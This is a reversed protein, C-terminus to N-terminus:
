NIRALLKSSGIYNNMIGTETQGLNSCQNVSNFDSVVNQSNRFFQTDQAPYNIMYNSIASVTNQLALLDSYPMNTVNSSGNSSISAVMENTYTILTNELPQLVPNLTISTFNGMICSNNQVGDSQYTLYSLIKGNGMALTYHPTSSDNGVSVVNSQRNTLYLFPSIAAAVNTSTSIINALAANGSPGYASHLNGIGLATNLTTITGNIASAVNAVPNTFYGGTNANAVDSQQWSNLLQPVMNMQTIVNSSYSSTTNATIPDSSNFGLRAYIGSM